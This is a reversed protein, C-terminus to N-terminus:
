HNPVQALFFLTDHNATLGLEVDGPFFLAQGKKLVIEYENEGAELEGEIMLLISLSTAKIKKSEHEELQFRTIAFEDVPPAYFFENKNAELINPFTAEFKVHKLLEAM